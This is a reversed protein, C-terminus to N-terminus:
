KSVNNTMQQLFRQERFTTVLFLESKSVCERTENEGRPICVPSNCYFVSAGYSELQCLLALMRLEKNIVKFM